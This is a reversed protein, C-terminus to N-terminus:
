YSSIGDTFVLEDNKALGEAELTGAVVGELEPPTDFSLVKLNKLELVFGDNTDREAEIKFNIETDETALESDSLDSLDFVASLSVDRGQEDPERINSTGAKQKTELNREITIDFSTIEDDVSVYGSGDGKDLYFKCHKWMYPDANSSTVTSITTATDDVDQAFWDITAQLEEDHGGSLSFTGFKTGTYKKVYNDGDGSTNGLELTISKLKDDYTLVHTYPDTGTTTAKGIVYQLIAGHQIYFPLSGSYEYREPIIAYYDQGTLGAGRIKREIKQDSFESEQVIGIWERSTAPDTGYTAEEEYSITWENYKTM